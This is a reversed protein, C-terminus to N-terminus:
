PYNLPTVSREPQGWGGITWNSVRRPINDNMVTYAVILSM